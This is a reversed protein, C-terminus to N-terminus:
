KPSSTQSKSSSVIKESFTEIPIESVNLVVTLIIEFGPTSTQLEVPALVEEVETAESLIEISDAMNMPAPCEVGDKSPPGQCAPSSM